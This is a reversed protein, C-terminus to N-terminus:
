ARTSRVRFQAIVADCPDGGHLAPLAGDPDPQRNAEDGDDGHAVRQQRQEGDEVHAADQRALHLGPHPHVQAGRLLDVGRLDVPDRSEQLSDRQVGRDGLRDRLAHGRPERRGQLSHLAFPADVRQRQEVRASAHQEARVMGGRGGAAALERVVGDHGGGPARARQHAAGGQHRPGHELELAPAERLAGEELHAARRRGSRGVDVRLRVAHHDAAGHGDQGGVAPQEAQDVAAVQQVAPELEDIPDLFLHQLALLLVADLDGGRGDELPVHADGGVDEGLLTLPRDTREQAGRDALLHELVAADPGVPREHHVVPVDGGVRGDEIGPALDDAGEVDAQQLRGQHPRLAGDHGAEERHHPEDGHDRQPQQEQDRPVDDVRDRADDGHRALDAFAVEIRPHVDVRGALHPEQALRDVAHRVRHLLALLLELEGRPLLDPLALLQGGDAAERGADRVLDVVREGAHEGEGM